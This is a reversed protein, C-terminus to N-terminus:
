SRTRELRNRGAREGQCSAGRASAPGVSFVIQDLHLCIWEETILSGGRGGGGRKVKPPLPIQALQQSSQCLKEM